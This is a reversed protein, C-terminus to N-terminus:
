AKVTERGSGNRFFLQALEKRGDRQMAKWGTKGKGSSNSVIVPIIGNLSTSPVPQCGMEPLQGYGPLRLPRVRVTM